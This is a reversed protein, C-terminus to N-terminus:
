DAPKPCNPKSDSVSGGPAYSPQAMLELYRAQLCHEDLAGQVEEDTLVPIATGATAPDYVMLRVRHILDRMTERVPM